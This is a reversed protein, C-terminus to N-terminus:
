SMSRRTAPTLAAHGPDDSESPAFLGSTAADGLASMALASLAIVPSGTPLELPARSGEFPVPYSDPESHGLADV